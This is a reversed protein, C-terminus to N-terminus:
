ADARGARRTPGHRRHLLHDGGGGIADPYGNTSYWLMSGGENWVITNYTSGAGNVKAELQDAAQVTTMSSLANNMDYEEWAFGNFGAVWEQREVFEANLGGFDLDDIWLIEAPKVIFNVSASATLGANDHATVTFDYVGSVLSDFTVSTAEIQTAQTIIAVSDRQLEYTYGAITGFFSGPDAASWQITASGNEAIASGPIPSFDINVTPPAADDLVTITRTASATADKSDKVTVEFVQNAGAALNEITVSTENTVTAAGAGLKYTYEVYNGSGGKAQWKFTVYANFPVDGSPGAIITITLASGPAVPSGDEACGTFLLMALTLLFAISRLINIKSM